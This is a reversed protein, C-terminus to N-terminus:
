HQNHHRNKILLFLLFLLSATTNQQLRKTYHIKLSVLKHCDNAPINEHLLKEIGRSSYVKQSYGYFVVKTMM